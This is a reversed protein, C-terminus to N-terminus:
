INLGAEGGTESTERVVPDGVTLHDFVYFLAVLKTEGLGNGLVQAFKQGAAPFVDGLFARGDAIDDLDELFSGIQDRRIQFGGDSGNGM